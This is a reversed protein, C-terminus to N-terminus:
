QNDSVHQIQLQFEGCPKSLEHKNRLRICREHANRPFDVHKKMFLSRASSFTQQQLSTCLLIIPCEHKVPSLVDCAGEFQKYCIHLTEVVSWKSYVRRQTEMTRWNRSSFIRSLHILHSPGVVRDGGQSYEEQNKEKRTIENLTGRWNM